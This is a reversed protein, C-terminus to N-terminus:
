CRSFQNNLKFYNYCLKVFQMIDVFNHQKKFVLIPPEVGRFGGQTRWQDCYEVVACKRLFSLGKLGAM